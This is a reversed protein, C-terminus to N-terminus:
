LFDHLATSVTSYPFSPHLFILFICSFYPYVFYNLVQLSLDQLQWVKMPAMDNNMDAIRKLSNALLHSPFFHGCSTPQYGVPYKTCKFRVSCQKINNPILRQLMKSAKRISPCTRYIKVASLAQASRWQKLNIFVCVTASCAGEGM